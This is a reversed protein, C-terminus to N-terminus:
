VHARGIEAQEKAKKLDRTQEEVMEELHNKYDEIEETRDTVEKFLKDQYSDYYNKMDILAEALNHMEVIGTDYNDLKIKKGESVQKLQKTINSLPAMYDAIVRFILYLVVGLMILILLAIKFLFDFIFNSISNKDALVEFKGLFREQDNYQISIEKTYSRFPGKNEASPKVYSAFIEGNENYVNIAVIFEDMVIRRIIQNISKKDMDWLPKKVTEIGLNLTKNLKNDFDTTLKQQLLFMAFATVLVFVVFLYLSLRGIITSALTKNSDM